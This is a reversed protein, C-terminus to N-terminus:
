IAEAAFKQENPYLLSGVSAGRCGLKVRLLCPLSQKPRDAIPLGVRDNHQIDHITSLLVGVDGTFGFQGHDDKWSLYRSAMM